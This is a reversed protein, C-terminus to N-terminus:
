DSMMGESLIPPSVEGYIIVGSYLLLDKKSESFSAYIDSYNICKTRILEFEINGDVGNIRVKRYFILDNSYKENKIKPFESRDLLTCDIKDGIEITPSCYKDGGIKKRKLIELTTMDIKIFEFGIVAYFYRLFSEGNNVSRYQYESMLEPHEGVNFSDCWIYIRDSSMRKLNEPRTDLYLFPDIPTIVVEKGSISKVHPDGGVSSGGSTAYM